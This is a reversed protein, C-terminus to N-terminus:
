IFFPWLLGKFEAVVPGIIATSLFGHNQAWLYWFYVMAIQSTIFYLALSYMAITLGNESM